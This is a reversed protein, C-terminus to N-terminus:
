ATEPKGGYAALAYIVGVSLAIDHRARRIPVAPTM